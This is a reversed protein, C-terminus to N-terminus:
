NIQDIVWEVDGSTLDPTGVDAATVKENLWEQFANNGLIGRMTESVPQEEPGQTVKLLVSGFSTTLPGYVRDLELEDGFLTPDLQPFAGEPVWGVDGNGDESLDDRGENYEAATELFDRGGNIDELAAEAETQTPTIIWQVYVQDATATALDNFHLRVEDVTLRGRLWTRYETESVQFAELFEEFNARGESTLDDIPASATPPTPEFQQIISQEMEEETVEVGLEGAFHTVIRDRVLNNLSTRPQLVGGQGLSDLATYPVLEALKVPTDLATVVTKRPPQFSSSYWGYALLAVIILLVFGAGILLLQRQKAEVERRSPGPQTRARSESFHGREARRRQRM